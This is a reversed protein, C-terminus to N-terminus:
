LLVGETHVCLNCFTTDCAYNYHISVLEPAMVKAPSPLVLPSSSLADGLVSNIRLALFGVQRFFAVHLVCDSLLTGFGVLDLRLCVSCVLWPWSWHRGAALSKGWGQSISETVWGNEVLNWFELRDNLIRWFRSRVTGGACDEMISVRIDPSYFSPHTM